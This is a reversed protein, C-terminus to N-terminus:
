ICIHIFIPLSVYQIIDELSLFKSVLFHLLHSWQTCIHLKNHTDEVFAPDPPHHDLSM